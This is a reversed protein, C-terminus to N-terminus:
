PDGHVHVLLHVAGDALGVPAPLEGDPVRDGTLAPGHASSEDEDAGTAPRAPRPARGSSCRAPIGSIAPNPPKGTLPLNRRVREGSSTLLWWALTYPWAATPAGGM